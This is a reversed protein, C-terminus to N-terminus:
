HSPAYIRRDSQQVGHQAALNAVLQNAWTSKGAGAFGTVVMFSPYFVKILDDLRGWGTSLPNLPPEPPFESLAYLGNVPYPKAGNLVRSVEAQGHNRLVDNLDKCGDPYEVWYCRIRGLRRVLEEAM